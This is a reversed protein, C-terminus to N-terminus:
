KRSRRGKLFELAEERNHVIGEIEAERLQTLLEGVTKSQLIKLAEMIEKGSLLPRPSKLSFEGYYYDLLETIIKELRKFNNSLPSGWPWRLDVRELVLAAALALFLAGIAEEGGDRFFHYKALPTFERAQFLNQMMSHGPALYSLIRLSRRSLRMREAVLSAVSLKGQQHELFGSPEGRPTLAGAEEPEFFFLALKFLGKRTIGEEITQSFHRGLSEGHAPSLEPLHDLIIEGAQVRRSSYELGWGKIEPFM